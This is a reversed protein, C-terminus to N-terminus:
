LSHISWDAGSKLSDSKFPLLTTSLEMRPFTTKSSKQDLEQPGQMRSIGM